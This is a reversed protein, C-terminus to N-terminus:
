HRWLRSGRARARSGQLGANVRRPDHITIFALPCYRDGIWAPHDRYLVQFVSAHQAAYTTAFCGQVQAVASPVSPRTDRRGRRGATIHIGHSFARWTEIASTAYMGSAPTPIVSQPATFM